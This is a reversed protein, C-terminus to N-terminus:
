WNRFRVPHVFTTCKFFKGFNLCSHLIFILSSRLSTFTCGFPILFFRFKHTVRKRPFTFTMGRPLFNRFPSSFFLSFARAVLACGHCLKVAKISCQGQNSINLRIRLLTVKRVHMDSDPIHHFCPNTWLFFFFGSGVDPVFISINAQNSM